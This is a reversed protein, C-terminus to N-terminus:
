IKKGQLFKTIEWEGAMEWVGQLGCMLVIGQIPKNDWVEKVKDCFQEFNIKDGRYIITDEITREKTM